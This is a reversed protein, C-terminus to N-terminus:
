ANYNDPTSGCQECEPMVTEDLEENICGCPCEWEYTGTSPNSM